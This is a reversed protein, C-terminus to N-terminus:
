YRSFKLSCIQVNVTLFFHLINDNVNTQKTLVITILMSKLWTKFFRQIDYLDFQMNQQLRWAQKRIKNNIYIWMDINNIIIVVDFTM